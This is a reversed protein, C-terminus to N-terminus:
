ALSLNCCFQGFEGVSELADAASAGNKLATIIAIEELKEQRKDFFEVTRKYRWFALDWNVM